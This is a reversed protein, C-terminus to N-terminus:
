QKDQRQSHHSQSSDTCNTGCLQEIKLLLTVQASSNDHYQALECLLMLLNTPPSPQASTHIIKKRHAAQRSGLTPKPGVLEKPGRVALEVYLQRAERLKERWKICPNNKPQVSHDDKGLDERLSTCCSSNITSM